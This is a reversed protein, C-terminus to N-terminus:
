HLWWLVTKLGGCQLSSGADGEYRGDGNTGSGMTMQEQEDPGKGTSVKNGPSWLCSSLTQRLPLWQNYADACLVAM